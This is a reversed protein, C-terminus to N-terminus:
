CMKNIIKSNKTKLMTCECVFSYIKTFFFSFFFYKSMLCLWLSVLAFSIVLPATPTSLFVLKLIWLNGAMCKEKGSKKRNFKVINKSFM